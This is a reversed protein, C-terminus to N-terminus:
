CSALVAGTSLSNGVWKYGATGNFPVSNGCNGPSGSYSGAVIVNDHFDYVNGTGALADHLRVSSNGGAWRSRTMEVVLGRPEDALFVAANGPDTSNYPRVDVSSHVVRVTGGAGPGYFQIADAHDGVRFYTRWLLSDTLTLDGGDLRLLDGANTIEVRTLTLDAGAQVVVASQSGSSTQADFTSDVVTASCSGCGFLGRAQTNRVTVGPGTLRIVGSVNKGDVIQGASVTLDGSVPALVTGAPVGTDSESPFCTPYACAAPM